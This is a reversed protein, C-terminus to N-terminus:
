GQLEDTRFTLELVTCDDNFPTGQRFEDL